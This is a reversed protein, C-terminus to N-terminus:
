HSFRWGRAKLFSRLLTRNREAKERHEAHGRALADKVAARQRAIGAVRSRLAEGLGPQDPPFFYEEMGLERYLSKLRLDHGVAMQPVQAALSLVGAHYRSTILLDLSRLLVTMESADYERSSFVRARGAHTM